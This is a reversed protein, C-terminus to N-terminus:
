AQVTQKKKEQYRKVAANISDKTRVRRCVECYTASKGKEKKPFEQGCQKCQKYMIVGKTNNNTDLLKIRM